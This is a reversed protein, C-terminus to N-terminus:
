LSSKVGIFCMHSSSSLLTLFRRFGGAVRACSLFANISSNFLMGIRVSLAKTLEIWLLILAAVAALPACVRYQNKLKIKIELNPPYSGIFKLLELSTSWLGIFNPVKTGYMYRKTIMTFYKVFKKLSSHFRPIFNVRRKKKRETYLYFYREHQVSIKCIIYEYSGKLGLPCSYKIIDAIHTNCVSVTSERLGSTWPVRQFLKFYNSIDTGRRILNAYGLFFLGFFWM